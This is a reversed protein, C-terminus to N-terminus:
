KTNTTPYPQTEIEQLYIEAQSFPLEQYSIKGKISIKDGQSPLKSNTLIWVKGTKDQIQYAGNKLLPVTRIVEGAIYVQRESKKNAIESVTLPNTHSSFWSNCSTVGITLILLIVWSFIQNVM